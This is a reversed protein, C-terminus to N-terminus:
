DGCADFDAIARCRDANRSRMAASAIFLGTAFAAYVLFISRREIHKRFGPRLRRPAVHYDVTYAVATTALAALLEAALPRRARGFVREHVSAWFISVAHHIAYGTLTHRLTMRRTYAEREGWLWQSPGNLAGAARGEDSKSCAAM